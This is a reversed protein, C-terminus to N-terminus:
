VMAVYYIAKTVLVTVLVVALASRLWIPILPKTPTSGLIKLTREAAYLLMLAVVAVSIADIVNPKVQIHANNLLDFYKIIVRLDM